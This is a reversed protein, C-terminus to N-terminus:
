NPPAAISPVIAKMEGAVEPPINTWETVDSVVLRVAFESIVTAIVHAFWTPYSWERPRPTPFSQRNADWRVEAGARYVYVFLGEPNEVPRVLMQGDPLVEVQAIEMERM